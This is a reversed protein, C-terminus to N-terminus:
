LMKGSSVSGDVERLLPVQSSHGGVLLSQNDTVSAMQLLTPCEWDGMSGELGMGGRTQIGWPRVQAPGTLTELTGM